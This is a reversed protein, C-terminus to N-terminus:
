NVELVFAPIRDLRLDRVARLRREGAILEYGSDVERVTIPQIVGNEAISQKLEELATPDFNERPQFPNPAVSSVDVDRLRETRQADGDSVDPILAELGKGLRRVAM